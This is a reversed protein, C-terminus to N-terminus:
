EKQKFVLVTRNPVYISLKSKKALYEHNLDTRNHGGYKQEDSSLHIKFPKQEKLGLPAISFEYHPISHLPSFNFVFILNARGFIIIQNKEDINLEIIESSELLNNKQSLQLMAKDFDSLFHYKLSKNDLLNWPTKAYKYSWNNGERPFDVWEPRGFENGIFNLYADGGMAFSILRIMKLLAIGRDIIINHSSKSMHWYMEKDMLRFAISKDGVLAQDHSESYTIVPENKRRNTLTHWMNHMSWEEDKQEKIIKIWYDPIGMALRFDFGLGGDKPSYCMGPMGSMDEAISIAEPKLEHLLENALQLYLLAEKEVSDNFYDEYSGFDKNKGHHSYLMSTIGDFRFGDLHYEEIWFRLNSLLFQLVEKKGYNFLKSDWLSHYGKKGKHFYQDDSGDFQDLGEAHNKIAHSHVLDIIVMIGMEHAKNVLKKFEKPSGFRSSPAFFSSVHYGFSAYYPHEQIGMLQITNYGLEKIRPLVLTRFDKFSSIGELNSSMGIHVEYILPHKRKKISFDSDTWAFPKPKYVVASVNFNEPNQFALKAYAPLRDKIGSDTEVSVKFLEKKKLINKDLFIEWVGNDIKSLPHSKRNWENFEGCLYIAKANPAWERYIWQKRSKNYNLGLYQYSQAFSKLSGYEKELEIKKDLFSQQRRFIEPAYPKLWEDEKLLLSDVNNKLTVTSM